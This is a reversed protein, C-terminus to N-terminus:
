RDTRAKNVHVHVRGSISFTAGQGLDDESRIKLPMRGGNVMFMIRFNPKVGHFVKGIQIVIQRKIFVAVADVVMFNSGDGSQNVAVAAKVGVANHIGLCGNTFGSM